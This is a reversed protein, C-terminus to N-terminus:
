SEIVPHSMECYGISTCSITILSHANTFYEVQPSQKLRVENTGVYVEVVM